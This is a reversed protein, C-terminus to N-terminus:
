AASESSTSHCRGAKGLLFCSIWPDHTGFEDAVKAACRATSGTDVTGAGDTAGALFGRKM